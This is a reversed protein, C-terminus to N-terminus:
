LGKTKDDNFSSTLIAGLFLVAVVVVVWFKGSMGFLEISRETAEALFM